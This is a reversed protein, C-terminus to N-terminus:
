SERSGPFIIVPGVIGEYGTGDPQLKLPRNEQDVFDLLVSPLTMSMFYKRNQNSM